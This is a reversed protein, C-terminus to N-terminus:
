INKYEPLYTGKITAPQELSTTMKSSMTFPLNALHTRSVGIPAQLRFWRPTFARLALEDKKPSVCTM